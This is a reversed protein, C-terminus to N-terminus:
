VKEEAEHRSYSNYWRQVTRSLRSKQGANNSRSLMREITVARGPDVVLLRPPGFGFKRCENMWFDKKDASPAATMLVCSTKCDRWLAKNGLDADFVPLSALDPHNEVYTTKGAGPPGTVITVFKQSPPRSVEKLVPREKVQPPLEIQVKSM